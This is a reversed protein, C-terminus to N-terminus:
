LKLYYSALLNQYAKQPHMKGNEWNSLLVQSLEMNFKKNFDELFDKQSLGSDVRKQLISVGNLKYTDKVEFYRAPMCGSKQWKEITSLKINRKGILSLAKRQDFKITKKSTEKVEKM